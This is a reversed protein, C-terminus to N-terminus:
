TKTLYAIKVETGGNPKSTIEIKNNLKESIKKAIYLGIGSSKRVKRGNDGTFFAETIRDLDYEPIGIGEDKIVLIIYQGKKEIAFYLPKMTEEALSYKIANSIFQELMIKNWKEDTYVIPQSCSCKIKPVVKGYIFSRKLSNIINNLSEELNVAKSLYDAEFEELRLLSLLNDLTSLIKKNEISIDNVESFDAEADMDIKKLLDSVAIDIVTVPTKLSHIFQSILRRQEKNELKINILENGYKIQLKHIIDFVKKQEKTFCRVKYELNEETIEIDENFGKYKFLKIIFSVSFIFLSLTIPYIIEVHDYYLYFFLLLFFTNLFYVLIFGTSDKIFNMFIVKAKLFIVM